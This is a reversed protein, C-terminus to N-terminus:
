RVVKTKAIIKQVREKSCVDVEISSKNKLKTDIPEGNQKPHLPKM